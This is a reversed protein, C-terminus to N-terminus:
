PEHVVRKAKHTHRELSGPPVPQVVARVTLEARIAAALRHQVDEARGPEAEVRVKIGTLAGTVRDTVEGDLVVLYEGAVGPTRRVVDEVASPFLNV